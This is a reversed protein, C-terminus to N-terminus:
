PLIEPSKVNLIYKLPIFGKILVEAQRQWYDEDEPRSVDKQTAKLNVKKLDDFDGGYKMNSQTAEMDTYLTEDFLAVDLDIKLLVLEAGEAQREKIKPLRPCFSTRVYDELGKKADIDRTLAMDERVPMAISEDFARKYSFLGGYKIISQIKQKETFHYLYQIGNAQLYNRIEDKSSKYAPSFNDKHLYSIPENNELAIKQENKFYTRLFLILESVDKQPLSYKGEKYKKHIAMALEDSMCFGEESAKEPTCHQFIGKLHFVRNAERKFISNSGVIRHIYAMSHAATYDAFSMKNADAHDINSVLLEGYQEMLYGRLKYARLKHQVNIPLSADDYKEDKHTEKDTWYIMRSLLLYLTELFNGQLKPSKDYLLNLGKHGLADLINHLINVYGFIAEKNHWYINPSSFIHNFEQHAFSLAVNLKNARFFKQFIESAIYPHFVKLYKNAFDSCREDQVEMPYFSNAAETTFDDLLRHDNIQHSHNVYHIAEKHDDMIRYFREKITELLFDYEANNLGTANLQLQYAVILDYLNESNTNKHLYEPLGLVKPIFHDLYDIEEVTMNNTWKPKPNWTLVHYLDFDYSFENQERNKDEYEKRFLDYKNKILELNTRIGPTSTGETEVFMKFNLILSPLERDNHNTLYQLLGPIKCIIRYLKTFQEENLCYAWLFDEM